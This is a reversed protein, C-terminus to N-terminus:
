LLHDSIDQVKDLITWCRDETSQASVRDTSTKFVLLKYLKMGLEYLTIIPLGNINARICMM